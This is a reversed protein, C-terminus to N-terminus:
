EEREKGDTTVKRHLTSKTTGTTGIGSRQGATAFSLLAIVNQTGVESETLFCLQFHASNAWGQGINARFRVGTPTFFRFGTDM